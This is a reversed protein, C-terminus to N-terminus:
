KNLHLMQSYKDLIVDESEKGWKSFILVGFNTISFVFPDEPYVKREIVFDNKQKIDKIPAAILFTGANIYTCLARVNKVRDPDFGYQGTLLEFTKHTQWSNDPVFDSAFPFTLIKSANKRIYKEIVEYEDSWSPTDVELSNIRQLSLFEKYLKVDERDFSTRLTRMKATAMAIEEINESPIVGIYQDLTGCILGYKHLLAEFDDLNVLMISRGFVKIANEIFARKRELYDAYQQASAVAKMRENILEYNSSSTLGIEKLLAHQKIVNENISPKVIEEKLQATCEDM